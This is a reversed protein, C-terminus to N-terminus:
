PALARVTEAYCQDLSAGIEFRQTVEALKRATDGRIRASNWYDETSILSQAPSAFPFKRGASMSAVGALLCESYSPACSVECLERLPTWAAVKEAHQMIFAQTAPDSQVAVYDLHTGALRLEPAIESRQAAFLDFMAQDASVDIAALSQQTSVRIPTVIPDLGDEHREILDLTHRLFFGDFLKFVVETALETEGATLLVEVAGDAQPSFKSGDERTVSTFESKALIMAAALDSKSAAQNMWSTGSFGGPQRLLAIRDSRSLNGTVHRHMHPEEAIRALLIQAATNGSEALGKLAVLAALDDGDLWAARAADFAPENVGAIPVDAATLTAFCAFVISLSIRAM